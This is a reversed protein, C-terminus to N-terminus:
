DFIPKDFSFSISFTFDWVRNQLSSGQAEAWILIPWQFYFQSSNSSAFPSLPFKKYQKIQGLFM